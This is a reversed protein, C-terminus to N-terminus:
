PLDMSQFGSIIAADAKKDLLNNDLLFHYIYAVLPFIPIEWATKRYFLDILFFFFYFFFFLFIVFEKLLDGHFVVSHLLIASMRVVIESIDAMFKKM